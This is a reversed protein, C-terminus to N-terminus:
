GAETLLLDSKSFPVREASAQVEDVAPGNGTEIVNM